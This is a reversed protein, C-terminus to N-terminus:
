VIPELGNGSCRPCRGNLGGDGGCQKCFITDVTNFTQKYIDRLDKEELQNPNKTDLLISTDKNANIFGKIWELSVSRGKYKRTLVETRHKYLKLGNNLEIELLVCKKDNMRSLKLLRGDDICYRHSSNELFIKNKKGSIYAYLNKEQALDKINELTKELLDM